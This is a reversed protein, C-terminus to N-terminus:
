TDYYRFVHKTELSYIHATWSLHSALVAVIWSTISNNLKDSQTTHGKREWM